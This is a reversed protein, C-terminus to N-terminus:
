RDIRLGFQVFYGQAEAGDAVVAAERVGIEVM